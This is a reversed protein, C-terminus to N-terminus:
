CIKLDMRKGQHNLAELKMKYALARESPLIKERQINSDIMYLIDHWSATEEKLSRKAM